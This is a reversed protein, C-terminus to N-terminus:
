SGAANTSSSRGCLVLCLLFPRMQVFYQGTIADERLIRAFAVYRQRTTLFDSSQLEPGEEGNGIGKAM